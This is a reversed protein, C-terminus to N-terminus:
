LGAFDEDDESSGWESFAVFPDDFPVGRRTESLAVKTLLVRGNEIAYGIEDGPGVGLASRIAQPITTQSKSTLRSTIM